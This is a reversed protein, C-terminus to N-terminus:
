KSYLLIYMVKWFERVIEKGRGVVGGGVLFCYILNKLRHTEKQTTLENTDNPGTM